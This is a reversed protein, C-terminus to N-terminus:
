CWHWHMNYSISARLVNIFIVKLVYEDHVCNCRLALKWLSRAYKTRIMSSPQALCFIKTDLKTIVYNTICIELNYNVVKLIITLTWEKRPTNWELLLGICSDLTAGAWLKMSRHFLWMTAGEHVCNKNCALNFKSLFYSELDSQAQRSHKNENAGPTTKVM